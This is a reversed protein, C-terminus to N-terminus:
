GPMKINHHISAVYGLKGKQRAGKMGARYLPNHIEREFDQSATVSWPM